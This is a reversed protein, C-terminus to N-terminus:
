KLGNLRALERRLEADDPARQLGEQVVGIAQFRLGADAMLGAVKVRTSTSYPDLELARGYEQLAANKDSKKLHIEGMLVHAIANLDGTKTAARAYKEARALDGQKLMTRGAYINAELHAPNRKLVETLEELAERNRNQALLLTALGMRANTMDPEHKLALKYSRIANETQKRQRYVSAMGVHARSRNPQAALARGYLALASDHQGRAALLSGMNELAGFDRPNTSIAHALITEDRGWLSAQRQALFGLGVLVLATPAWLPVIRRPSKRGMMLLAFALLFSPGVLALYFYRDAVTSYFQYLFPVFGLNPLLAAVVWGLSVVFPRQKRFRWVLFALAVPVLLMAFTWNQAGLWAPTRGYNITLDVPFLLKSAYFAVADSAVVFRMAPAVPAVVGSADQIRTMALALALSMGLWPWLARATAKVDRGWLGISLLAAILPLGVVSPKSLLAAGFCVTAGLWIKFARKSTETSTETSTERLFRCFLILAALCFFAALVGKLESVWAASEVQLPHVAFLLTGALAASDRAFDDTPNDHESPAALPASLLTKLLAFVFLCNVAHLLLSVSHFVSADLAIAGAANTTYGFKALLGWLTYTMPMYLNLYPSKWFFFLSSDPQIYHPNESVLIPDDWSLFSASRVSWFVIAVAALVILSYIQTRDRQDRLFSPIKM